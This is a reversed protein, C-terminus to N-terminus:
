YEKRLYLIITYTDGSSHGVTTFNIDGTVGSGANNTIGGFSTYDHHGSQNEGLQIAFADTSADFADNIIDSCTSILERQIHKQVIIRAHYEINASSIVRNTLEALYHPGGCLKLKKNKKLKSTVMLTDIPEGEQFLEELVRYIDKHADKYFVEPSLIDGIEAMANKDIMIAGLVAEEFDIAQPPMKTNKRIDSM